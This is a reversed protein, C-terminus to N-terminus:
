EDWELPGIRERVDMLWANGRTVMTKVSNGAPGSFHSLRRWVLGGPEGMEDPTREEIFIGIASMAEADPVKPVLRVCYRVTCNPMRCEPLLGGREGAALRTLGRPMGQM